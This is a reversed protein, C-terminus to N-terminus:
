QRAAGLAASSRSAASHRLFLSAELSYSSVVHAARVHVENVDCRIETAACSAIACSAASARPIDTAASGRPCHAGARPGILM